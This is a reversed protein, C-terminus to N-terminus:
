SPFLQSLFQLVQLLKVTLFGSSNSLLILIGTVAQIWFNTRVTSIGIASVNYHHALYNFAELGFAEMIILDFKNNLLGQVQPSQIIAVNMDRTAATINVMM